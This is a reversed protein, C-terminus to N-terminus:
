KYGARDILKVAQNQLEGATSLNASNQKFKGWSQVFSDVQVSPNAPYELNVEAFIKQAKEKSLWELFKVAETKNKTYKTIGAGSVNVHVGEEDQNAWFISIPLDPKQKLLRGYYYTNVIGVDCQGAAIAEMLSTDDSYVDVALNKIWGKVIEETKEIGYENIMMAVLSQNYVKKSTRLGLRKFWKESALNSYTSLEEPNVTNNNYVITRVRLSLGFWMNQPDKLHGPINKNLIDSEVQQLLNEEAAHWLNGADVTILIDAPTNIGEAKLRQLLPGEKDTIFKIKIGTEETYAEFVPKILQENRASYVVLEDDSRSSCGTIFITVVFSIILLIKLDYIKM